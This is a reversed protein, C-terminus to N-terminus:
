VPPPVEQASVGAPPPTRNPRGAEGQLPPPPLFFSAVLMPSTCCDIPGERRAARDTRRARRDSVGRAILGSRAVHLDEVAEGHWSGIAPAPVARVRATCCSSIVPLLSRLREAM